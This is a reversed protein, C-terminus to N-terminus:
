DLLAWAAWIAAAQGHLNGTERPRDLYYQTDPKKNTGICVEKLNAKDDLYGCLAIFAKKSPEKYDKADLWGKKVGTAMAFTFMGTCSTEPWSKPDDILQHWMGDSDQNKLLAAMMKKYGDTIRARDSHDDPLTMLLEAMGVAVWGDGRGWYHESGEGHYFLGTPQQLKDLYAVMEKAARDLYTKDKTARYAQLQLSTIMFMDDIWFRTQATLGDERPNEWQADASKKGLELHKEDHNLLYIEFPVIGFVSSDVNVPRQLLTKGDPTTPNDTVIMAYRAILKDLLEKDGITDAFRMSGYATCVEPYQLGGTRGVMYTPREVLNVAIRKGITKPDKGEPWDGWSEGASARTGLLGILVLPLLAVVVRRIERRKV